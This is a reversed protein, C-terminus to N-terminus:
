TKGTILPVFKVVDLERREFGDTQRELLILRQQDRQGVPMVLRGGPAIQELLAEPVEPPAAAALIGDYPAHEPWGELGDGHRYQINRYGLEFLRDRSARFLEQVREVTYVEEALVSLLATQYGSGTGIELVRRPQGAAILAQTMLAVVFPQSITQGHGIPLAIDEYARSALAEDVFLHRPVRAIADLVRLDQIGSEQLRQVLRQRTRESTMGIGRQWRRRM